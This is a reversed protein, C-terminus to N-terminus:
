NKNSFNGQYSQPRTASRKSRLSVRRESKRSWIKCQEIAKLNTTLTQARVRLADYREQGLQKIKFDMYEGQKEEEWPIIGRKGDGWYHCTACLADCNEPDFRVNKKVRGWFHSNQLQVEPYTKGCRVCKGDRGRIFKSFEKDAKKLGWEKQRPKLGNRAKKASNLKHPKQKLPQKRLSQFRPKTSGRSFIM